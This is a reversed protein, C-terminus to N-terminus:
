EGLSGASGATTAGLAKAIVSALVPDLPKGGAGTLMRIM